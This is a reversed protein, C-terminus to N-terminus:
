GPAHVLELPYTASATVTTLPTPIAITATAWVGDDRYTVTGRPPQYSVGLAHARAAAGAMDVASIYWAFTAMATVILGAVIVLSAVGFAAEITVSGDDNHLSARHSLCRM